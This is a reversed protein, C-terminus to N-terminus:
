EPVSQEFETTRTCDEGRCGTSPCVKSIYCGDNQVFDTDGRVLIGEVVHTDSNFVPSGSNGGYTDLNCVIFENHQNNRVNAGGAYKVPLGTPHGIVHVAQFDNIRGSRRIKAIRHGNVTRDIKVLSWDTGEDTYQRGVISVGKYIESNKIVTQANDKDKMKFGFVFRIDSVDSTNACHGATAIIDGAVLFGSCFAGTPQSRFREEACLNHVDGFKQTHLTSTGDGNDVIKSSRFLAVVSDLDNLKDQDTSIEYYDKRDDVGYIVKEKSKLVNVLTRTDIGSFEKRTAFGGSAASGFEKKDGTRLDKVHKRERAKLEFYLDNLASEELKDINSM